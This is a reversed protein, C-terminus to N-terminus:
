SLNQRITTKLAENLDSTVGGVRILGRGFRNGCIALTTNIVQTRIAGYVANGPLYAIDGALASLDGIHVAVRELELAIARIIMATRSIEINGLAEMSDTYATTHAIVSDGVISEALHPQYGKRTIFLSEI